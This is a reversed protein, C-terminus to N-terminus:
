RSREVAALVWRGILDPELNVRGGARLEGLTTRQLTHPV